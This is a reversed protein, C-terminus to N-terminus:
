ERRGGTPAPRWSFIRLGLTGGAFGRPSESGRGLRVYWGYGADLLVWSGATYHVRAGAYTGEAAALTPKGWTRLLAADLELGGLMGTGGGGVTLQGGGAGVEAQALYWEFSALRCHFRMRGMGAAISAGLPESYRVGYVPGTSAQDAKPDCEAGVHAQGNLAVPAGLCLLAGCWSALRM